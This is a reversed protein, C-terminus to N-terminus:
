VVLSDSVVVTVLLAIGAFALWRACNKGLPGRNIKSPTRKPQMNPWETSVKFKTNDISLAGLM